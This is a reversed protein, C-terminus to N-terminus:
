VKGEVEDAAKNLEAAIERAEVYSLPYGHGITAHDFEYRAWIMVQTKHAEVALGPGRGNLVSERKYKKSM